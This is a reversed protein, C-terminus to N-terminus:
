DFNLFDRVMPATEAGETSSFFAEPTFGFLRATFLTPFTQVQMNYTKVSTNYDMRAIRLRNEISDLRDQINLFSQSSTLQPYAEFTVLLRSLNSDFEQGAAIKEERSAANNWGSRAEAIQVFTRSEHDAFGKAVSTINPILDFRSQYNNEVQAWSNEIEITRKTLANYIGIISIVVLILLGLFIYKLYKTM